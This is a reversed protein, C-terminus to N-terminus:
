HFINKNIEFVIFKHIFIHMIIIFLKKSSEKSSDLINIGFIQNYDTINCISNSHM